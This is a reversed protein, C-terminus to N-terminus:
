LPMVVWVLELTKVELHPKWLDMNIVYKNKFVLIGQNMM